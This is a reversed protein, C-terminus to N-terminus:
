HSTEEARRLTFVFRAGQPKAFYQIGGGQSEIIARCIALGVGMGDTKTTHFPEFVRRAVSPPLGPGTDSISVEVLKRHASRAVIEIVKHRQGAMAETSNRILNILVQELQVPDVKVLANDAQLRLEVDEHQERVRSFEVAEEIVHKLDVVHHEAKGDSIFSRLRKIIDGARMLQTQAKELVERQVAPGPPVASNQRTMAVALFNMAAALPQNLEHAIASTMVQM